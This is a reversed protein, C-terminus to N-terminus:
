YGPEDLGAKGAFRRYVLTFYFAVLAMGPIWWVLGIRLGHAAAATGQATLGLAPDGNSPLVYPYLGFAASTLMGILYACSALFAELDDRRRRFLAVGALGAVALAPFIAGWPHRALNAAIQPQVSLAALTVLATTAVVVWLLAGARRRAREEVAGGLKLTLWLAGHLALAALAAVGM